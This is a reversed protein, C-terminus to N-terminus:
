APGVDATTGASWTSPARVSGRVEQFPYRDEGDESIGLVRFRLVGDLQHIVM